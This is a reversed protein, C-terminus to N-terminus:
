EEPERYEGNFSEIFYVPRNKTENFIRGVYEGLIGLGILQVGGLFLIVVMMSPYGAVPDGWILAKLLIYVMYVFAVVAVLIGFVSVLRLPAITFSTIGNIALNLLAGFNWKSEGELRDGQEFEVGTKRCGIWCYMGKTYREADRMKRLMNICKRDLLRFDGVNPLVEVRTTHQLIRYYTMTLSKRLKSEKGRTKRVAYVDEYGEEWKELFKAIMHPPHQLDADMIVVCDGSVYDFGALMAVEKGFNRSLDVYNVRKDKVRLEQLMELTRDRSGDNVFMFEWEYQPLGGVVETLKDYLLPLSEQENYAPILISVKKM